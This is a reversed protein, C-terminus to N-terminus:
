SMSLLLIEQSNVVYLGKPGPFLQSESNVFPETDPFEKTTVIQGNQVEVRVIGDDTAAFLFPDIACHGRIVSLWSKGDPRVQATAEVSGDPRVIACHHWTEGNLETISFVWCRDRSFICHMDITPGPSRPLTVRDYIGKRRTHFVFAVDLDGARYFGFGFSEGVWFQTQGALVDGIYEPGLDGDRLLQGNYIWYRCTENADFVEGQQSAIARTEIAERQPPEGPTLTVMHGAKGILTVEGRIRFHVEPDLKGALITNGDERKFEGCDYYVWRLRDGQVLAFLIVGETFFVSTASVTGRVQTVVPTLVPAPTSPICDPCTPRAHELGCATCKTWQLRDLLARDFPERRDSTFCSYFYDLLEDPLVKYPIAPKPYKVEPHFISIGHLSRADQPIRKSTDKPKYVGGFPHVFLLCQMLMVSFAYWDSLPSYSGNLVPKTYNPDCLLPDLFRATFVRCAFTQTGFSDADIIYARNQRILVNLDNFDGIVVGVKHIDSVTQHLDQFIEIVSQHSIGSQRFARDSYRMLVEAAKIRRMTYGLITDGIANMAFEQPQVVRIPLNKPFLRLKYQHEALRDFAAQQQEPWDQYDPHNPQKFLKLAKGGGIDYIDAEGGKGISQTPTLHIRNGNIYIDM